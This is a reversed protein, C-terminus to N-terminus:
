STRYFAVNIPRVAGKVSFIVRYKKTKWDGGQSIVSVIVNTLVPTKGDFEIANMPDFLNYIVKPEFQYLGDSIPKKYFEFKYGEPTVVEEVDDSSLLVINKPDFDHETM